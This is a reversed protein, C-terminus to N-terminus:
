SDEVIRAQRLVAGLELVRESIMTRMSSPTSPNQSTLGAGERTMFRRTGIVGMGPGVVASSLNDDRPLYGKEGGFRTIHPEATTAVLAPPHRHRDRLWWAATLLLASRWLVLM